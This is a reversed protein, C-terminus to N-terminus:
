YSNCHKKEYLSGDDKIRDGDDVDDDWFRRVFWSNDLIILNYLDTPYKYLSNKYMVILDAM